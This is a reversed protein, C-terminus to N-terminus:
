ETPVWDSLDELGDLPVLSKSILENRALIAMYKRAKELGGDVPLTVNRPNRLLYALFYSEEVTLKEPSHNFYYWTAPGIGYLDDGFEVVNLYLELIENKELCSELAITLFAEEVKRGITKHRRLWLNKALQQTITSGGLRFEGAKLNRDLAVKLSATLIGRHVAFSPDELRLFANVVPIPIAELATWDKTNPGTRRTFRSRGDAHYVEYEFPYKLERIPSKGCNYYCSHKIEVHPVPKAQIEFRLVGKFNDAMGELAPSVPLPLSAVWESCEEEGEVHSDELDFLLGASGWAVRAMDDGELPIALHLEKFSKPSPAIWTHNTKVRDTDVFLLGDKYAVSILDGSVYYDGGVHFGSAKVYEEILNVEVDFLSVPQTGGMKPLIDPMVIDTRLEGFEIKTKDKKVCTDTATVRPTGQFLQQPIRDDRVEVVAREFCYQDGDIQFATVVATAKAHEITVKDLRVDQLTISSAGGAGDGEPRKSIFVKLDGGRVWVNKDLDVTVKSVVGQVWPKDVQVQTVTVRPYDIVVDGQVQLYPYKEHIYEAIWHPVQTHAWWGAGLLSALCLLPIWIRKRM